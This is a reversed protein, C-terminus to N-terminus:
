KERSCYRGERSYDQVGHKPLSRCGEGRAVEEFARSMSRRLLPGDRMAALQNKDRYLRQVEAKAALAARHKGARDCMARDLERGCAALESRYAAEKEVSEFFEMGTRYETGKIAELERTQTSVETHLVAAKSHM